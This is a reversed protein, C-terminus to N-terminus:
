YFMLFTYGEDHKYDYLQATKCSLPANLRSCNVVLKSGNLNLKFLIAM